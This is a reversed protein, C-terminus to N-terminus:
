KSRSVKQSEHGLVDFDRQVEGMLMNEGYPYYGAMQNWMDFSWSRVGGLILSWKGPNNKKAYGSLRDIDWQLIM